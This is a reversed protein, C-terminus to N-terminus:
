SQEHQWMAKFMLGIAPKSFVRQLQEDRSQILALAYSHEEGIQALRRDFEVIQQDREEITALAASLHDGM